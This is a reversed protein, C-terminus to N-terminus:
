KYLFKGFEGWNKSLKYYKYMSEMVNVPDRLITIFM